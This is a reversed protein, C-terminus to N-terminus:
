FSMRMRNRHPREVVDLALEKEQSRAVARRMGQINDTYIRLDWEPRTKSVYWQRENVLDISRSSDVHIIAKHVTSGQSAHSTVCYALDVKRADGLPMSLKRDNEFQVEINRHDLKTIIGQQHNALRRRNDPERWELRDGVAITRTEATYVNLGTWKSPDFSILRGNEFRLTLRDDSAESVTLYVGKPIQQRKSGRRFYIVDGEHFSMANQKQSDAMDRPILIDHKQGLSQVYGADVLKQRIAQNIALREENAPSVVLCKRDAEHATLFEIAIHNYRTASDKVECIRNQEILLDIAEHTRGQTTLEVARLLGLEKQRRITTLRAVVMNDALFQRLPAGAEIPLHQRQDGVFVLREVGRHQALKLLSNASRSALLSSEDIVWLERGNKAPLPSVLAKAVTRSDIGADNLVSVSRTTPGFGRVTWGGDEAFERVAGVTTTKATGAFGEIASVWKPTTLTLVAAETQDAFLGKRAAWEEVERRGTSSLTGDVASRITIGTVPRGRDMHDRVLALNEREVRVMDRTTYTDLPHLYSRGGAILNGSQEQAAMQARVHQLDTAGIGHKLAVAAIERHDVVAQRSTTHRIAFDVSKQAQAEPSVSREVSRTPLNDLRIGYKAALAEREAKIAEPDHEAKSKRGIAGIKRAAMSRPDTIGDRAMRQQIEQHRESFAEIQERTYGALEFAGDPRREIHYGIQQVRNALETMYVGDIFRRAKYIEKPDLGRWHGEPMQTLNTIFTHHHLQPMPGHEGTISERADHHEFMVAVINETQVWDRRGRGSRQRGLACAEAARIACIAAARDAEILRTDGAVLAQISVSKPPSLTVDWGARQQGGDTPAPRLQRGSTPDVGRLLAEFQEATIEGQLGLAQAGKGLAQGITPTEDPAYYEGVTSYHQRYYTGAAEVTMAGDSLSVM